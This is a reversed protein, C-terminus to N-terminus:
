RNCINNNNRRQFLLRSSSTNNTANYNQLAAAYDQPAVWFGGQEPTGVYMPMHNAPDAAYGTFPHQYLMACHSPLRNSVYYIGECNSPILNTLNLGAIDCYGANNAIANVLSEM